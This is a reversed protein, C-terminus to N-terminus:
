SCSVLLRSQVQPSQLTYRALLGKTRAVLQLVLAPIDLDLYPFYWLLIDLRVWSRRTSSELSTYVPVCTPGCSWNLHRRGEGFKQSVCLKRTLSISDHEPDCKNPRQLAEPNTRSRVSGTASIEVRTAECRWSSDTQRPTMSSRNKSLPHYYETRMKWNSACHYLIGSTYAKSCGVGICQRLATYTVLHWIRRGGGVFGSPPHADSQWGSGCNRPRLLVASPVLLEYCLKRIGRNCLHKNHGM